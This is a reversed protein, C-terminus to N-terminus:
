DFRLHKVSDGSNYLELLADIGIELHRQVYGSTVKEDSEDTKVGHPIM